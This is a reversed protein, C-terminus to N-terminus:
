RALVMKGTRVEDDAQLRYLYVGSAQGRGDFEIQHPGASQVANVLAAVRRGRIDFVQLQVRGGRNLSYRIRTVPNFPNPVNDYLCFEHLQQGQHDMGSLVGAGDIEIYDVAMWGWSKVISITNIGANLHIPGFEIRTWDTTPPFSFYDVREGNVHIYQSKEGNFGGYGIRLNYTGSDQVSVTFRILDGDSDFSSAEVYGSGSYGARTNATEVGILEANEAEFRTSTEPQKYLPTVHVNQQPVSIVTEPNDPEAVFATDGSWRDFVLSDTRGDAQILAYMDPYYLGGGDGSDVRVTVQPGPDSKVNLIHWNRIAMFKPADTPKQGIRALAGWAMDGWNGSHTYHCVPGNIHESLMDFYNLYWTFAGRNVAFSAAHTVIHQGAEYCFLPVDQLAPHPPMQGSWESTGNLVQEVKNIHDEAGNLASNMQEIIDPAAGNLGNGVYPAIAYGDPLLNDPNITEDSLANAQAADWWDNGAAGSLVKVVRTNASEGFVDLFAQWVRVAAYVNYRASLRNEGWSQGQDGPFWLDHVKGSDIGTQHATFMPNFPENSWEIFVKLNSDLEAQILQAAHTWYDDVAAEPMCVWLDCQTRNCLDIMWYLAMRRQNAASRRTRDDWHIEHQNNNIKGYDMFRLTSYFEIEALFEPNWPNYDPSECSDPNVANEYGNKWPDAGGWAQDWFNTGLTMSSDAYNHAFVNSLILLCLSGIIWATRM